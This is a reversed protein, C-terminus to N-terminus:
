YNTWIIFTASFLSFPTKEPIVAGKRHLRFYKRRNSVLRTDRRCNHVASALRAVHDRQPTVSVKGRAEPRRHLKRQVSPVRCDSLLPVEHINGRAAMRVRM